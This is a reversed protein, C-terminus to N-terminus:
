GGAREEDQPRVIRFNELNSRPKVRRESPESVTYSWGQKQAFGVAEDRSAFRMVGQLGSFTDGSALWGMLPEPERATEQVPEIVWSETKARGSQTASKAPRYIRVRM